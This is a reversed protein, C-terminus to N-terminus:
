SKKAVFTIFTASPSVNKDNTIVLGEKLFMKMFTVCLTSNFIHGDSKVHFKYGDFNEIM